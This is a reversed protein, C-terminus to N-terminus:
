KGKRKRPKNVEVVGGPLASEAGVGPTHRGKKATRTEILAEAPPTAPVAKAPRGRAGPVREAPDDDASAAFAEVSVGLARSLKFATSLLPERKGQEYDRITGLGLGSEAALREQTLEAAARIERLKAAFTM